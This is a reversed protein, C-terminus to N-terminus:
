KQKAIFKQYKEFVAEEVKKIQNFNDRKMQSNDQKQQKNASKLQQVQIKYDSINQKTTTLELM